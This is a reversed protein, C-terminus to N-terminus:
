ESYSTAAVGTTTRNELWNAATTACHDLWSTPTTSNLISATGHNLKSAAIFSHLPVRPLQVSPGVLDQACIVSGRSKKM